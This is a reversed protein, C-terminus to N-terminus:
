IRHYSLGKSDNCIIYWIQKSQCQWWITYLQIMYNRIQHSLILLVNHLDIEMEITKNSHRAPHLESLTDMTEMENIEDQAPSFDLINEQGEKPEDQVTSTVQFHKSVNLMPSHQSEAILDDQHNNATYEETLM